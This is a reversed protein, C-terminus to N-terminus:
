TRTPVDPSRRLLSRPSRAAPGRRVRRSTRHRVSSTQHGRGLTPGARPGAPLALSGIRLTQHLEVAAQYQDARELFLAPPGEAAALDAAVQVEVGTLLRHRRAEQFGELGPVPDDGGVPVVRVRQQHPAVGAGDHGLEVATFVTQDPALAPRHVQEVDVAAEPAAVPDDAAVDGQTHPEGVRHAVPLGVVDALEEEAVTRHLGAGEM